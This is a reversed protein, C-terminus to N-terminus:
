FSYKEKFEVDKLVANFDLFSSVTEKHTNAAELTTFKIAERPYTTHAGDPTLYVETDGIKYELLWLEM